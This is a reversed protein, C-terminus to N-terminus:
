LQKSTTSIHQHNSNAYCLFHQLRKNKTKIFFCNPLTQWFLINITHWCSVKYVTFARYVLAKVSKNLSNSDRGVWWKFEGSCWENYTNVIIAELGVIDSLRYIVNEKKGAL